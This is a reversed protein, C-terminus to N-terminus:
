LGAQTEQSQTQPKPKALHEEIQKCININSVPCTIQKEIDSKYALRLINDSSTGNELIGVLEQLSTSHAASLAKQFEVDNERLDNLTKYLDVIKTSISNGSGRRHLM